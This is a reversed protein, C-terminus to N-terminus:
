DAEYVSANLDLGQAKDNNWVRIRRNRMCGGAKVECRFRVRARAQRKVSSAIRGSHLRKPNRGQVKRGKAAVSM